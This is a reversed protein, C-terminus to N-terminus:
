EFIIHHSIKLEHWDTTVELITFQKQDDTQRIYSIYSTGYSTSKDKCSPSAPQYRTGFACTACYVIHFLNINVSYLCSVNRTCRLTLTISSCVPIKNCLMLFLRTYVSQDGLYDLLTNWDSPGASLLLSRAGHYISSAQMFLQFRGSGGSTRKVHHQWRPFVLFLVTLLKTFNTLLKNLTEWQM